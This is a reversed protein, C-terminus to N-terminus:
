PLVEATFGASDIDADLNSVVTDLTYTGLPTNQPVAIEVWDSASQGPSLTVSKSFLIMTKDVGGSVELRVEDLDASNAQDTNEVRVKYRLTEGRRVSSPFDLVTLDIRDQYLRVTDMELPDAIGLYYPDEAADEIFTASHASYGQSTRENNICDRVWYAITVPDTSFFYSNPTSEEPFTSWVQPFGFPGGNWMGFIADMLILTTKHKIEDNSNITLMDQVRNCLSPPNVSGYHNKFSSTIQNTGYHDKIVPINILYDAEEVWSSLEHGPIPFIGSNCNATNMLKASNGNFTFRSTEYGHATLSNNDYVTVNSVDYTGDLMLSLGSVVGRATEWRTDTNALVNVKIAIKSSSTVGPLLAQFAEGAGECGTLAKVGQHVAFEARDMDIISGDSLHDDHMLIIRGPITNYQGFIRGTQFSPITSGNLLSPGLVLGTSAMTLDRLFRRRSIIRFDLKSLAENSIHNGPNTM